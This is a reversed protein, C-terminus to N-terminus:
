IYENIRRRLEIFDDTNDTNVIIFAKWINMRDRFRTLIDTVGAETYAGGNIVLLEIHRSVLRLLEGF